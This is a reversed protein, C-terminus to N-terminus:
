ESVVNEGKQRRESYPGLNNESEQPQRRDRVFASRATYLVELSSNILCNSRAVTTDEDDCGAGTGKEPRLVEPCREQAECRSSSETTTAVASM